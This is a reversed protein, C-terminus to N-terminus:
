EAVGLLWEGVVIDNADSEEALAGGLSDDDADFSLDTIPTTTSRDISRNAHRDNRCRRANPQQKRSANQKATARADSKEACVAVVVVAAAAAVPSLASSTRRSQIAPRSRDRSVVTFISLRFILVGCRSAMAPFAAPLRQIDANISWCRDDDVVVRASAAVCSAGHSDDDFYSNGGVTALDVGDGGGGGDAKRRRWVVVAVVLAALLCVGVVVGVVIGILLSGSAARCTLLRFAAM